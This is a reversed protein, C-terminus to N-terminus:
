LHLSPLPTWIKSCTRAQPSLGTGDRQRVQVPLLHMLAGVGCQSWSFHGKQAHDKQTSPHVGQGLSLHEFLSTAQLSRSVSGQHVTIVPELMVVIHRIRMLLDRTMTSTMLIYREDSKCPVETHRLM